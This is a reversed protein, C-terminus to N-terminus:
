SRAEEIMKQHKELTLGNRGTAQSAVRAAHNVFDLRQREFQSLEDRRLSLAKGGRVARGAARRTKVLRREVQILERQADVVIWGFRAVTTVTRRGDSELHKQAELMAAQAIKLTRDTKRGLDLVDIAEGYTVEQGVSRGTVLDYLKKWRPVLGDAPEFPKRQEDEDGRM